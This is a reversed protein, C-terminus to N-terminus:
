SPIDSWGPGQLNDVNQWSADQSDAVVQWVPVQNNNVAVWTPNQTDNVAQWNPDQPTPISSWILVDGIRLILQVGTVLVNIEKIATLADQASANEALQAVFFVRSTNAAAATAGEQMDATIALGSLVSATGSAGAVVTSFFDTQSLFSSAGTAMEQQLAYAQMTVTAAASAGATELIAARLLASAAVVANSTAGEAMAALVINGFSFKDSFVFASEAIAPRFVGQAAVASQGAGAESIEASFVRGGAALASFPAQAFTVGGFM